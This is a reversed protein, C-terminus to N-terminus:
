GTIRLGCDYMAYVIDDMANRNVLLVGTGLNYVTFALRSGDRADIFGALSYGTRIWGTKAFIRGHSDSQENGFRTSLSGPQGSIALANKVGRYKSETEVLRLVKNVLAPAVRSNRSLGSADQVFFDNPNLDLPALAIEFAQTLSSMSGSLGVDLSVLRGMAEALANDSSAMMYSIWRSMPQSQVSAIQVASSPLSGYQLQAEAASDGIAARLWGGAQMVPTRSRPSSQRAPTQRDADVQLASVPAMYGQTLGRNDWTDHWEGDGGPASWLTSDLVITHIPEGGLESRIQSALASLKPADRYVSQSGPATRSLTIDGAGVFFIRGPDSADRFVRTTVRYDPGLTEIVAVSTLIKMVSALRASENARSQYLVRGNALNVVEARWDLIQPSAALTSLNCSPSPTPSPSPTALESASPEPSASPDTTADANEDLEAQEAALEDAGLEPEVQPETVPETTQETTSSGVGEAGEQSDSPAPLVEEAITQENSSGFFSISGIILTLALLGSGVGIMMPKLHKFDAV